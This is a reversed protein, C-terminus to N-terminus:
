WRGARRDPDVFRALALVSLAATFGATGIAAAFDDGVGDPLVVLSAPPCSPRTTWGGHRTEGAGAGNLVVRDGIRVEHVGPGVAAVTGVVDIGPM